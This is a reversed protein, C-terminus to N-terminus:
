LDLFRLNAIETLNFPDDANDKRYFFIEPNPGNSIWWEVLNSDSVSQQSILVGDVFCSIEKKSRSISFWVVHWRNDNLASKYCTLQNWWNAVAEYPTNIPNSPSWSFSLNWKGWLFVMFRSKNSGDPVDAVTLFSRWNAGSAKTKIWFLLMHDWHSFNNMSAHTSLQNSPWPWIGISNWWLPIASTGTIRPVGWYWVYQHVFLKNDNGDNFFWKYYNTDIPNQKLTIWVFQYQGTINHTDYSRYFSIAEVIRARDMYGTIQPYLFASLIGIIAITIM